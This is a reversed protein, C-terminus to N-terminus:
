GLAGADDDYGSGGLFSPVVEPEQVSRPTLVVLLNRKETAYISLHEPDPARDEREKARAFAILYHELAKDSEGPIPNNGGAALDAIVPNYWVELLVATSVMPAIKITPAGVPAGANVVAYYIVSNRPNIPPITQAQVFAPDILRRPKFVLSPNSSSSGLTRPQINVVRFLDTPVGQVTATSAALSMNTSDITVIHDQYLDITGKWLDKIGLNLIALLEADTWFGGAIEAPELLTKRARSIITSLLTAM